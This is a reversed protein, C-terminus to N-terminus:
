GHLIGAAVRVIIRVADFHVLLLMVLLLLMLRALLLIAPSFSTHLLLAKMGFPIGCVFALKSSFGTLHHIRARCLVSWCSDMMMEIVLLLLLMGTFCVNLTRTSTGLIRVRVAFRDQQLLTGNWCVGDVGATSSGFLLQGVQGRRRVKGGAWRGVAHRRVWLLPLQLVMVKGM